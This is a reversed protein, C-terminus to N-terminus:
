DILLIKKTEIYSGARLTYLYVGSPVKKGRTDKGNWIVFYSGAGPIGKALTKILRGSIDYINLSIVINTM